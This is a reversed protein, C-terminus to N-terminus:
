KLFDDYPKTPPLMVALTEPSQTTTPKLAQRGLGYVLLGISICIYLGQEDAWWLAFGM